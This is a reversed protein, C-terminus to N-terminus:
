RSPGNRLLWAAMRDGTAMGNELALHVRGGTFVDGALFLGAEELAAFRGPALTTNPLAQPWRTVSAWLYDLRVGLLGSVTRAAQRALERDDGALREGSWADAMQAVLVQRGEPVYGPKAEEFALWSVAHKRDGNVLAYAGSPAEVRPRPEFAVSVISRYSAEGLLGAADSAAPGAGSVGVLRAAERPLTAILMANFGVATGKEGRARWHGAAWHIESVSWNLQVRARSESAVLYPLTRLGHRYVWKPMANQADDGPGVTGARDFPRVDRTIARLDAAPLGRLLVEEAVETDTRVFQAGDDFRLLGRDVTSVRGGLRPRAEFVTVEHGRASLRRAAGLGAIGGGIVAVRAM